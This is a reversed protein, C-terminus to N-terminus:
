HRAPLFLMGFIDPVLQTHCRGRTAKAKATACPITTPHAALSKSKHTPKKRIKKDKHLLFEM